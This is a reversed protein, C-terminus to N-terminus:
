AAGSVMKKKKKDGSVNKLERFKQNPFIYKESNLPKM